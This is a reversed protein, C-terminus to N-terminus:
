PEWPVKFISQNISQVQFSRLNSKLDNVAESSSRFVDWTPDATEL